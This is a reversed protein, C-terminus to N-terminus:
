LRQASPGLWRQELMIGPSELVMSNSLDAQFLRVERPDADNLVSIKPGRTEEKLGSRTVM